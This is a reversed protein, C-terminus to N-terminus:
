KRVNVKLQNYILKLSALIIKLITVKFFRCFIYFILYLLVEISVSWIPGNFSLGDEFGWFSIFSLNLLFHKLDNFQYIYYDNFNKFYYIQLFVVLILTFLHLPYLRSFRNLAYQRFSVVRDAIRVGYTHFFIFGSLIFFLYVAVHGYNYFSYFILYLPQEEKNFEVRETGNWFFHQYHWFLIVFAAVGRIVDLLYYHKISSIYNKICFM